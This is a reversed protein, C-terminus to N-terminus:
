GRHQHEDDRNRDGAWGCLGFGVHLFLREALGMVTLGDIEVVRVLLFPMSAVM